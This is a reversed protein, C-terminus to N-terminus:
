ALSSHLGATEELEVAVLLPLRLARVDHIVELWLALVTLIQAQARALLRVSEALALIRSSKSM